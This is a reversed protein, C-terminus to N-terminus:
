EYFCKTRVGMGNHAKMFYDLMRIPTAARNMAGPTPCFGVNM